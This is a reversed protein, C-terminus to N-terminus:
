RELWICLYVKVWPTKIRTLTVGLRILSLIKALTLMKVKVVSGAQGTEGDFSYFNIVDNEDYQRFPLLRTIANAM